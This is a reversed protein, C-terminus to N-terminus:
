GLGFAQQFNAPYGMQWDRGDRSSLLAAEIAEEFAKETHLRTPM